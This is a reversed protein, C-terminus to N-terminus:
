YLIDGLFILIILGASYFLSKLILAKGFSYQRFKKQFYFVETSGMLLGGIAAILFSIFLNRLFNYESNADINLGEAFHKISFYENVTFVAGAVGWFMSLILIKPLGSKIKLFNKNM